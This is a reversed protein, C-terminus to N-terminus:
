RTNHAIRAAYLWRTKRSHRVYTLYASSAWRGLDKLEWEAFGAEAASTAAGARLSHTSFLEGDLDILEVLTKIKKDLMSKSIANGQENIFLDSDRHLSGTDMRFSLYTVMACPCCVTSGSCGIHATFGSHSTKSTRARFSLVPGSKRSGLTIQSVVPKNTGCKTYESGRMSGFFGLSLLAPWVLGPGHSPLYPWLKKLLRFTLPAKRAPQTGSEAAAKLALKLQPTRFEPEPFGNM